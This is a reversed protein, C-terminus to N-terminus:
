RNGVLPGEDQDALSPLLTLSTSKTNRGTCDAMHVHSHTCDGNKGVAPQPIVDEANGRGGLFRSVQVLAVLSWTDSSTM